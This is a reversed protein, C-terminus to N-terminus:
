PQKALQYAYARLCAQESKVNDVTEVALTYGNVEIRNAETIATDNPLTVVFRNYVRASEGVVTNADAQVMADVRCSVGAYATGWTEIYDGQGNSSLTPPSLINCTDPLTKEVEDQMWSLEAASFFSM